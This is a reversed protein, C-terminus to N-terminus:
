CAFRIEFTEREHNVDMAEDEEGYTAIALFLESGKHRSPNINIPSEGLSVPAGL